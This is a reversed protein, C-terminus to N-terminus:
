RHSDSRPPRLSGRLGGGNRWRLSGHEREGINFEKGDVRLRSRRMNRWVRPFRSTLREGRSLFGEQERLAKSLHACSDACDPKALGGANGQSGGADLGTSKSSRSSPFPLVVLRPRTRGALCRRCSYCRVSEERTVWLLNQGGVRGFGVPFPALKLRSADIVPLLDLSRAPEPGM